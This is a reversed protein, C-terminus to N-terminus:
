TLAVSARPVTQVRDKGQLRLAAAKIVLGANKTMEFYFLLLVFCMKMISNLLIKFDDDTFHSMFPAHGCIAVVFLSMEERRWRYTGARVCVCARM